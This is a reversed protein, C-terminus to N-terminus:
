IGKFQKEICVYKKKHIELSNWLDNIRSKFIALSTVILISHKIARNTHGVDSQWIEHIFGGLCNFYCDFLLSCFYFCFLLLLLLLFLYQLFLFLFFFYLLKTLNSPEGPPLSLLAPRDLITLDKHFLCFIACATSSNQAACVRCQSGCESACM